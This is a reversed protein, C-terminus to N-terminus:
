ATPRITFGDALGVAEDRTQEVHEVQAMPPGVACWDVLADLAAPEGEAVLEVTGDSRNRVWGALGLGEARKQTSARFFVGHVRGHIVLHARM